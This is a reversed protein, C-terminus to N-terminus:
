GKKVKFLYILSFSTLKLMALIILTIPIGLAPILVIGTFLSGFAAGAHDAMDVKGSARGVRAGSIMYAKAALPFAVGTLGGATLVLIYFVMESPIWYPIVSGTVILFLWYSFDIYILLNRLKRWNIDPKSLIMTAFYSGITLGLMFFAVFLGIKQYLCGYINQYLYLFVLESSIGCIGTTIILYLSLYGIRFSPQKQRIALIVIGAILLLFIFIGAHIIRLSLIWDFGRVIHEGSRSAWLRLNFLYTTPHLDTNLPVSDLDKKISQETFDIQFPELMSLFLQPAFYESTIRRSEYRQMLNRANLTLTGAGPSAFLYMTTGPTVKIDEFVVDLSKYVSQIYESVDRGFYNVASSCRTVLVGKQSLIELTDEYFDVTYYRNSEATDPEPIEVWILDYRGSSDRCKGGASKRIFSRGDEHYIRVREEQLASSVDKTLYPKLFPLIEGDMEVYDIQKLPYSLVSPLVQPNGGGLILIRRIEPCMSLVLHVETETGYPDPFSSVFSGNSLLSYQNDREALSLQQYPTDKTDILRFGPAFSDWRINRTRQELFKGVPTLSCILFLLSFLGIFIKLLSHIGKTTQLVLFASGLVLGGVFLCTPLPNFVRILIFTFFMGGIISGMSDATYIKGISPADKKDLDVLSRCILPFNFGTLISFPFLSISTGLLFKMLPIYEGPPIHFLSRLSRILLINWPCVLIQILLLCIATILPKSLRDAIISSLQSGVVVGFFWTFFFLGVFLENGGAIVFYERIFVIQSIITFCGYFVALAILFYFPMRTRM